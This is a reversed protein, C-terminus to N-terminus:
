RRVAIAPDALEMPRAPACRFRSPEGTARSPWCRENFEFVGEVRVRSLSVSALREQNDATMPVLITIYRDAHRSVAEARTEFLEASDEGYPVMQGLYGEVCVRRGGFAWPTNWLQEMIVQDCSELDESEVLLPSPTTCATMMLATLLPLFFRCRVM